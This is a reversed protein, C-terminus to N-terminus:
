EITEAEQWLKRREFHPNPCRGMVTIFIGQNEILDFKTHVFETSALVYRAFSEIDIKYESQIKLQLKNQLQRKNILLM